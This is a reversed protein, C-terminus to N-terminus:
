RAVGKKRQAKAAKSGKRAIKVREARSLTEGRVTGGAKGASARAQRLREKYQAIWARGAETLEVHTNSSLTILNKKFLVDVAALERRLIRSETPTLNM